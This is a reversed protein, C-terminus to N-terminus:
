DLLVSKIADLGAVLLQADGIGTREHEVFLADDRLFMELLAVANPRSRPDEFVPGQACGFRRRGWLCRV